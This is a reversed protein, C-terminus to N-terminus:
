MLLQQIREVDSAYTISDWIMYTESLDIAERRPARNIVDTIEFENRSSRKLGPMVNWMEAPMKVFGAFFRGKVQTHPKEIVFGDLVCALQLNAMSPTQRTVTTYYLTDDRNMLPLTGSYFNDGFLIICDEMIRQQWISVAVGTGYRDEPQLAIEPECVEHLDDLLRHFIHMGDTYIQRSSLTVCIRDAGNALAFKACYQPLTYGNFREALKDGEFRTSAGGALILFTTM